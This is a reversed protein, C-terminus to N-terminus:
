QGPQDPKLHANLLGDKYLQIWHNTPHHRSMVGEMWYCKPCHALTLFPSMKCYIIHCFSPFNTGQSLSWPHGQHKKQDRNAMHLVKLAWNQAEKPNNQEWSSASLCAQFCGSCNASFKIETIFTVNSVKTASYKNLCHPTSLDASHYRQRESSAPKWGLM